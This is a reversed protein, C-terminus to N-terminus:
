LDTMIEEIWVKAKEAMIESHRICFGHPICDKDILMVPNSALNEASQRGRAAILADRTHNAVWQDDQGFFFILKPINARQTPEKHEIGWIDEDWRDETITEMEDRGLHLAQWIGMRSRLFRTTVAASDDPMRTVLGVLWKLVAEPAWWLLAKAARSARRPFDPIRALATLKAGNPSKAIHTVTPFLLIGAKINLASGAKRLRQIVELL